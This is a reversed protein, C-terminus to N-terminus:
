RKVERTLEYRLPELQELSRGLDDRATGIRRTLDRYRSRRGQRAAATVSTYLRELRELRTRISDTASREFPAADIKGIGRAARGYAAELGGLPTALQRATRARRLQAGLAAEDKALRVLVANIAEAYRARPPPSYVRADEVELTRAIAGCAKAVSSGEEGRCALTAVGASTPLAYVTSPLSSGRQRLGAYRLATGAPLDVPQRDVQGNTVTALYGAPLLSADTSRTYGALVAEDRPARAPRRAIPRQMTLGTISAEELTKPPQWGAPVGLKLGGSAIPKDARIPVDEVRSPALLYGVGALLVAVGAAALGRRRRIAGRAEGDGAADPPPVSPPPTPALTAASGLDTVPAPTAHSRAAPTSHASAPAAPAPPRAAPKAPSERSRSVPELPTPPDVTEPVDRTPPRVPPPPRYTEYSRTPEGRPAPDEIGDEAPPTSPEPIAVDPPATSPEPIAVDPPPTAIGTMSLPDVDTEVASSPLRAARRWRAGVMGLVLDELDDFAAAASRTRAEPDRVLLGDIWDSLPEPLSENLTAAAPVEENIRRLLVAVPAAEAAQPDVFPLTSTFFEYAMCGVAYLDTWPGVGSAMAQEPAMYAPTGIAMGTATLFGSPNVRNIAKAIGFDAIKVHGDPAVLVNEPKLDRHVIGHQEAHTLAALVGDLVGIIQPFTMHGVHPRLSGGAVYEMAIFPTGDHEFYDYVHVISPHSLSGALRSEQLFRRAGTPEEADLASLEKLAVLRDLDIQRALHVVAMGGRGLRRQIEYRGVTRGADTM